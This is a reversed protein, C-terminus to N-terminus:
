EKDLLDNIVTVVKKSKDLEKITDPSYHYKKRLKEQIKDVDVARQILVSRGYLSLSMLELKNSKWYYGM